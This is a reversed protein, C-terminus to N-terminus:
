QHRGDDTRRSRAHAEVRKATRLSAAARLIMPREQPGTGRLALWVIIIRALNAMPAM